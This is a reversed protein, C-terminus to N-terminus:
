KKSNLIELVENLRKTLDDIDVSDLAPLDISYKNLNAVLGDISVNYLKSMKKLASINPESRNNEYNALQYPKVGILEAAEKQSLGVQKRFFKFRKGLNM